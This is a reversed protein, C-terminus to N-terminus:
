EWDLCMDPNRALDETLPCVFPLWVNISRERQKERGEGGEFFIYFIEFFFTHHM